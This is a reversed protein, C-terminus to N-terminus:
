SAAELSMPESPRGAIYQLVFNVVTDFDTTHLTVRTDPAAEVAVHYTSRDVDFEVYADRDISLRSGPCRSILLLLPNHEPGSTTMRARLLDALKVLLAEGRVPFPLLNGSQAPPRDYQSGQPTSGGGVGAPLPGSPSPVSSGACIQGREGAKRWSAGRFRSWMTRVAKKMNSPTIIASTMRDTM